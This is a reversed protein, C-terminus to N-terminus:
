RCMNGSEKNSTLVNVELNKSIKLYSKHKPNNNQKEIYQIVGSIFKYAETIVQNKGFYEKHKLMRGDNECFFCKLENMTKERMNRNAAEKLLDNYVFLLAVFDHFVPYAMYKNRAHLSIEKQAQALANTLKITKRFKKQGKPRMISSLLCNSHAAANRLFKISNLYDSYNPADYEQYYVTYLKVFEGFSLLEVLNWVSYNEDDSHKEALDSTFNYSNAKQLVEMKINPYAWFYKKVIHYGDEKENRSIDYLMRTKLIHELDLCMGLIIKRLYMDLKSLEILYAFELNVYKGNRPNIPYNRAYSKLKFYYNNYRLFKKAEGEDIINFGIGKKKLDEIQEEITLKKKM